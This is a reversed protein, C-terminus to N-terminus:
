EWQRHGYNHWEEGGRIPGNLASFLTALHKENGNQECAHWFIQKNVYESDV